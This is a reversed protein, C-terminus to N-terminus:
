ANKQDTVAPKKRQLNDPISDVKQNQARLSLFSIAFLGESPAFSKM